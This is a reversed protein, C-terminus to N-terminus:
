LPCLECKLFLIVFCSIQVSRLTKAVLLYAGDAPDRREPPVATAHVWSPAAGRWRGYHWSGALLLMNGGCWALTREKRSLGTAFWCAFLERWCLPNWLLFKPTVRVIYKVIWTCLFLGSSSIDPTVNSLLILIHFWSFCFWCVAFVFFREFHTWRYWIEKCVILFIALLM